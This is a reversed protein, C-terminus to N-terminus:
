TPMLPECRRKAERMAVLPEKAGLFAAQVEEMFVDMAKASNAFGPVVLRANPLTAAEAQWYPVLERVRPDAYASTRVPGNGNVAAAITAERGSLAKIFNWSMAKDRANSPIAMAWVSTKAPAPGGGASAAMPVPAVSIRGAFNSQKPDNYNVFRGYPQNTMAVRGQQMLTIIDETKITALNRPVQRKRFMERMLTVAAVAGPEDCVVKYEPTVFEGGYARVVDIMGSPDDMSTVFGAVQGGDGRTWTLKETWAVIEEFSKPHGALGREQAFADNVFLGHTAHRYPIGILKGRHTHALRMGASIEDFGEIPDRKQWEGLDEFLNAIQPGGFRDLIFAVDVSGQALSAERFARENVAEVGFTLWEVDRGAAARFPSTSDGGKEGTAVNRHVVHSVVVFKPAQARAIAPAALASAGALLAARRRIGRAETSVAM